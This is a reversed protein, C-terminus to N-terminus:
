RILVFKVQQKRRINLLMTDRRIHAARIGDELSNIPQQNVAMIIDGPRLGADWASCQPEVGLVEIGQGFFPHGEVISGLTTGQLKGHLTQGFVRKQEPLEIVVRRIDNGRKIDLRIKKGREFLMLKQELEAANLINGGNYKLVVDGSQVGSKAASSGKDVHVIVIGGRSDIDFLDALERTLQQIHLGLHGRKIEGFEILQNMVDRTLNIPIALGFGVGDSAVVSTNIGVLAGNSNLLAGGSNGPHITADTQIFDEFRELGLGSRGLASVMGTSASFGNGYANGIAVVFDGVRLQDSNSLSLATLNHADIQLVAIDVDPDSGILKAKVKRDDSLKVTIVDAKTIVRHNTVVYGWEADVIVGSGLSQTGRNVPLEPTNFFNQFFPDKLMQGGSAPAYSRTSINVVAKSAKELLISLANDRHEAQHLSFNTRLKGSKILQNMAERTLHIPIAMGFGLGPNEPFVNIGVLAGQADLLAGGSNGPPMVTDTQIFKDLREGAPGYRSLASVIGASATYGAGKPNGLAMVFDGVMLSKSNSLALAQLNDAQIKLIAIDVDPDSGIHKAAFRRGDLLTVALTQAKDMIHHNTLIYGRAADVIVGSGLNQAEPDAKNDFRQFYPDTFLGNHGNTSINVVSKASKELIPALSPLATDAYLPAFALLALLVGALGWNGM